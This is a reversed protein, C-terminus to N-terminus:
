FLKKIRNIEYVYMLNDNYVEKFSNQYYDFTKQTLPSTEFSTSYVIIKMSESLIVYDATKKTLNEYEYFVTDHLEYGARGFKIDKRGLYSFLAATRLDSATTGNLNLYIINQSSQTENNNYYRRMTFPDEYIMLQSIILLIITATVVLVRFRKKESWYLGFLIFMLPFSYDFIRAYYNEMVLGGFILLLAIFWGRLILGRFTLEKKFLVPLLILVYVHTLLIQAIYNNLSIASIYYNKVGLILLGGFFNFSSVILIASPILIILPIYQSQLFKLNKVFFLGVVLLLAIFIILSIKLFNMEAISNKMLILQSIDFISIWAAYFVILGFFSFLAKKDLKSSYALSILLGILIMIMATAGTHYSTLALITFITFVILNHSKKNKLYKIFFLLSTWMFVYCLGSSGITKMYQLLNENALAYVSFALFGGLNKNTIEKGLFFMVIAGFIYIIYINKFIGGFLRQFIATTPYRTAKDSFDKTEGRGLLEHEYSSTYAEYPSKPLDKYLTIYARLYYGILFIFIVLSIWVIIKFEKKM